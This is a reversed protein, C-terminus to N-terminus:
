LVILIGRILQSFTPPKSKIDRKISELKQFEENTMVEIFKRQSYCCLKYLKDGLWIRISLFM